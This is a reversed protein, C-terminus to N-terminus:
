SGAGLFRNTNTRIYELYAGKDHVLDWIRELNNWRVPRGGEMEALVVSKTVLQFDTVFHENAAEDVNVVQWQLRGASLQEAFHAELAEQAYSELKICTPCRKDGRFYYAIVTHESEAPTTDGQGEAGPGATPVRAEAGQRLEKVAMYAVSAAVFVLLLFTILTKFRM